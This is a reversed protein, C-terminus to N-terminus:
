VRDEISERCTLLLATRDVGCHGDALAKFLALMPYARFVGSNGSASLIRAVSADLTKLVVKAEM